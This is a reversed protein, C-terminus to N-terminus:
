SSNKRSKDHGDKYEIPARKEYGAILHQIIEPMKKGMRCQDDVAEPEKLIYKRYNRTRIVQVQIDM